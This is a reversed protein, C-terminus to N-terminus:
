KVEVGTLIFTQTKGDPGATDLRVLGGPIEDCLYITGKLAAPSEKAGAAPTSSKGTGEFVKCKFTKGMATVEKEGILKLDTAGADAKFTERKSSETPRQGKVTGKSLTEVVVEDDTVSVLTQKTEIHYRQGQTQIDAEFTESSGPKFKSWALYKPNQASDDARAVVCATLLAGMISSIFNRNV